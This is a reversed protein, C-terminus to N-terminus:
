NAVGVPQGITLPDSLAAIMADATDARSIVTGRPVSGGIRRRYRRTLPGDTLRPPRVATVKLGSAWMAEEMAGLDQFIPRLLRRAIPLFIMRGFLSEGPATEGIPAASVAILRDVGALKMAAVIVRTVSSAVPGASMSRPGVGSIVAETGRMANALEPANGLDAITRVQLGAHPALDGASRAIAVVEHGDALLRQVVIQGIRGNAGVVAVNM